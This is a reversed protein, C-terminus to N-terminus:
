KKMKLQVAQNHFNIFGNLGGLGDLIEQKSIWTPMSSLYYQYSSYPWDQIKHCIGHQVANAHIYHVVKYYYTDNTILRRNLNDMFLKGKRHMRNNYTKTYSNCWNAFQESIFKSRNIDYKKQDETTKIEKFKLEIADMHKIRAFLHFHNPLLNFCFIDAVPLIYEQMKLIFFEYQQPMLFLKENGVARNYIHYYQDSIFPEPVKRMLILYNFSTCAFLVGLTNGGEPNQTKLCAYLVGRPHM